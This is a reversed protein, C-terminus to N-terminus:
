GSDNKLGILVSLSLNSHCTTNKLPGAESSDDWQLCVSTLWWYQLPSSTQSATNRSLNCFLLLHKPFGQWLFFGRLSSHRCAWIGTLSYSLHYFSLYQFYVFAWCVPTRIGLSSQLLTFNTQTKITRDFLTYVSYLLLWQKNHPSM